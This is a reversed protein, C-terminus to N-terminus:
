PAHGTRGEEGVVPRPMRPPRSRIGDIDQRGEVNRALQEMDVLRASRTALPSTDLLASAGHGIGAMSLLLRPGDGTLMTRLPHRHIGKATWRGGPTCCRNHPTM